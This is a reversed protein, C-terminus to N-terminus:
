AEFVEKFRAMHSASEGPEEGGAGVIGEAVALVREFEGAAGEEFVLGIFHRGETGECGGVGFESLEFFGGFQGATGGFEGGISVEFLERM